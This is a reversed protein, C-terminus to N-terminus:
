FLKNLDVDLGIAKMERAVKLKWGDGDDMPELLIGQYDSPIEVDGRYLACVKSRGLSGIFLGLELLVNQRARFRKEEPAGVRHAEDDPTMIVIAYDVEMHGELKEIITRGKNAQEHLIIPQYGIRELFRSVAQKAAEDHGHVVFVKKTPVREQKPVAAIALTKGVRDLKDAIREEFIDILGEFKMIVRQIEEDVAQRVKGIPYDPGGIGLTDFSWVWYKQYDATNEGFLESLTANVKDKLTEARPDFRKQVDNPNFARMDEIRRKLSRIGDQMDEVSLVKSEPQTPPNKRAM